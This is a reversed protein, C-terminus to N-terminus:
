VVVKRESYVRLEVNLTIRFGKDCLRKCFAVEDSLVDKCPTGDETTYDVLPYWFYPYDLAQLVTRRCAFFGLNTYDVKVLTKEKLDDITIFPFTGTKIYTSYDMNEVANVTKDSTHYMASVVPYKETMSVLTKFQEFNFVITPDITVFVDYDIGDFAKIQVEQKNLDLTKMRSFMSNTSFGPYLSIDLTNDKLLDILFKTWSILFHSSYEQGPLGIMVRKKKFEQKTSSSSESSM